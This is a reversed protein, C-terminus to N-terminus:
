EPVSTFRELFAELRCYYDRKDNDTYGVWLDKNMDRVELITFTKANNGKWKSGIQPHTM